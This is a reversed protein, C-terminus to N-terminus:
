RKIIIVIFLNDALVKTTLSFLHFSINPVRHHGSLYVLSLLVHAVADVLSLIDLVTLDRRSQM